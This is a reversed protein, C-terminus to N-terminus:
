GHRILERELENRLTDLQRMVRARKTVKGRSGSAGFKAHDSLKQRLFDIKIQLQEIHHPIGEGQLEDRRIQQRPYTREDVIDMRQSAIERRLKAIKKSINGEEGGNWSDWPEGVMEDISEARDPAGPYLLAREAEKLKCFTEFELADRQIELDKRVKKMKMISDRRVKEMEMIQKCAKQSKCEIEAKTQNRLEQAADELHKSKSHIEKILIDIEQQKSYRLQNCERDDNQTENQSGSSPVVLGTATRLTM